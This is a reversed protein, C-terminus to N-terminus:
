GLGEPMLEHLQTASLARLQAPQDRALVLARVLPAEATGLPDSLAAPRGQSLRGHAQTQHTTSKLDLHAGRANAAATRAGTKRRPDSPPFHSLHVIFGYISLFLSFASTARRSRAESGSVTKYFWLSGCLRCGHKFNCSAHYTCVTRTLPTVLRRACSRGRLSGGRYRLSTYVWPTNSDWPSVPLHPKLLAHSWPVCPTIRILELETHVTVHVSLMFSLLRIHACICLACTCTCTCTCTHMCTCTCVAKHQAHMHMHM